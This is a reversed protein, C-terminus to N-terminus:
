RGEYATGSAIMERLGILDNVGAMDIMREAYPRTAGHRRLSGLFAEAAPVLARVLAGPSIVLRFGLFKGIYPSLPGEGAIKDKAAQALDWCCGELKPQSISMVLLAGGAAGLVIWGIKNM